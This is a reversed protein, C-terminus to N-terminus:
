RPILMPIRERPLASAAGVVGQLRFLHDMGMMRAAQIAVAVQQRTFAPTAALLVDVPDEQGRLVAEALQAVEPSAPPDGQHMRVTGMIAIFMAHDPNMTGFGMPMGGGSGPFIGMAGLQANVQQDIQSLAQAAQAQRQVVAAQQVLEEPLGEWSWRALLVARGADKTWISWLEGLFGQFPNTASKFLGLLQEFM